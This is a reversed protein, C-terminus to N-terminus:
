DFRTKLVNRYLALTREAMLEVTFEEAVRKRAAAGFRARLNADDLLQNIAGALGASDRPPVSLGTQGNTSVFTVGSDLTTNIVPKGCAMAELQVLGFAEARTISPLVFVDAAGYYARLDGVSGLFHIKGEVGIRRAQALLTERLPGNGILLLRADVNSMASILYEFGKYGVLRGVALVIRSGASARIRAVKDEDVNAFDTLRVGLPIVVCRERFECLVPSSDIYNPSTAIIASARRLAARLIPTFGAGLVRQRVIDSHYTVILKGRHGSALWALIGMPHPFHLHVIDGQSSQIARFLGPGIPASAFTFWTPLRRVRVGDVVETVSQKHNGSVLVEIEASSKLERCLSELYTEIGGRHPPYFNGVHLIRM